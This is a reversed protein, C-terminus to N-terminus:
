GLWSAISNCAQCFNERSPRSLESYASALMCSRMLLTVKELNNSESTLQSRWDTLLIKVTQSHHFLPSNGFSYLGTLYLLWLKIAKQYLAYCLLIHIYTCTYCSIYLWTLFVQSCISSLQTVYALQLVAIQQLGFLMHIETTTCSSM